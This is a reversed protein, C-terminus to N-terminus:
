TQYSQTGYKASSSPLNSYMTPTYHTYPLVLSAHQVKPLNSLPLGAADKHTNQGYENQTNSGYENQLLVALRWQFLSLADSTCASHREDTTCASHRETTCASRREAVIDAEAVVIDAAAIEAEAAV